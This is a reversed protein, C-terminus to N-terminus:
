AAPEADAEEASGLEGARAAQIHLARKLVDLPDGDYEPYAALFLATEHRSAAKSATEAASIAAGITRPYMSMIGADAAHMRILSAYMVARGAANDAELADRHAWGAPKTAHEPHAYTAAAVGLDAAARAAQTAAQIARMQEVGARQRAAHIAAEAAKAAAAIADIAASLAAAQTEAIEKAAAEGAEGPAQTSTQPTTETTM